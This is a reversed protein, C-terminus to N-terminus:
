KKGALPAASKIVHPLDFNIGRIHPYKSIIKALNGGIGGGIDIIETIEQFGTYVELIKKMFITTHNYMSKNFVDSFTSDIGLYEFLHMGHAMNFPTGGHLM